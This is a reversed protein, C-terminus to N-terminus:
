RMISGWLCTSAMMLTEGNVPVNIVKDIRGDKCCDLDSSIKASYNGGNAYVWPFGGYPDVGNNVIEVAGQQNWGAFTGDEFGWNNADCDIVSSSNMNQVPTYVSSTIPSEPPAYFGLNYKKNIYRVKALDLYFDIQSSDIDHAMIHDIEYEEDFGALSDSQTQSFCSFGIMPLSLLLIIKKM